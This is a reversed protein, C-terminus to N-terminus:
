STLKETETDRISVAITLQVGIAAFLLMDALLVFAFPSCWLLYTPCINFILLVYCEPPTLVLERM